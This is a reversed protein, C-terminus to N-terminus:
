KCGGPKSVSQLNATAIACLGVVQIPTWRLREYRTPPAESNATADQACARDFRREAISVNAISQSSELGFFHIGDGDAEHVCVSVRLMLTEGLLDKAIFAKTARYRKRM